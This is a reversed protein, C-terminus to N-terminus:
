ASHIEISRMGLERIIEEKHREIFIMIEPTIKKSPYFRLEGEVLWIRLGLFSLLTLYRMDM